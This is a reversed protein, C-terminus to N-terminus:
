AFPRLLIRRILFPTILPSPHFEISTGCEFKSRDSGAQMVQQVNWTSRRIRYDRIRYRRNISVVATKSCAMREAIDGVALDTESLLSIIRRVETESLRNGQRAM